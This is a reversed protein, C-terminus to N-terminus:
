GRGWGGPCRQRGGPTVCGLDWALSGLLSSLPVWMGTLVKRHPGESSGSYTFTSESSGPTVLLLVGVRQEMSRGNEGRQAAAAKKWKRLHM